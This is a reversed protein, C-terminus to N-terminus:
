KCDNEVMIKVLDDFSTELKWGLISKAKTADGLLQNVEAPRFFKSDIFILEKGTTQDYGIENIDSGKWKIDFGKLKFAKEVFSRITYYEGTALIYDDPKDHQLMLWMGKVYDKAYGWDRYSDINGLFLKDSEGKVIKGLELTIKRTVFECGRRESEHNFLIGTCAFLNYSERYNKVIWHAYLKSVGYPSRPYFPTTEKQPIEQVEGFMESTSAQYFRTINNLNNKIIAELLNLTGNCNINTTYEPNNFSKQVHSQAGLNYVELREMNPYLLKIESLIKYLCSNDTLDGYHLILNKKELLHKINDINPINSIRVLGHVIYNKELLLEALFSGDQGGIGTVFAIKM